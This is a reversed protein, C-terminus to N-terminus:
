LLAKPSTAIRPPLGPAERRGRSGVSRGALLLDLGGDGLKGAGLELFSHIRATM